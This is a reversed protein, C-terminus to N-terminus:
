AWLPQVHALDLCYAASSAMLRPRKSLLSPSSSSFSLLQWKSLDQRKGLVMGVLHSLCYFLRGAICSVHTWDRPQSSGRSFPIAVWELIRTQLIGHVSYGPPSCYLGHPRLSHSVVSHSVRESKEHEEYVKDCKFVLVTVTNEVSSFVSACILNCLTSRCQCTTFLM